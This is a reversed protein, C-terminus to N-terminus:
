IKLNTYYRDGVRDYSIYCEVGVAIKSYVRADSKIYVKEVKVGGDSGDNNTFSTKAVCHVFAGNKVFQIGVISAFM